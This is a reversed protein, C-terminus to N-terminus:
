PPSPARELMQIRRELDDIKNIKRYRDALDGYYVGFYFIAVVVGIVGAITFLKPKEYKWITGIFKRLRVFRKQPQAVKKLPFPNGDDELMKSWCHGYHHSKRAFEIRNSEMLEGFLPHFKCIAISEIARISIEDQSVNTIVAQLLGDWGPDIYSPIYVIGADVLSLRPLLIAGCKENLTIRENSAVHLTEGPFVTLRNGSERIDFCGKYSKYTKRRNVYRETYTRVIPGLTIRLRDGFYQRIFFKYAENDPDLTVKFEDRCYKIQNDNPLFSYSISIDGALIRNEVEKRSMMAILYREAVPSTTKCFEGRM